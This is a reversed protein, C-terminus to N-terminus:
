ADIEPLENDDGKITNMEKGINYTDNMEALFRQVRTADVISLGKKDVDGRITIMGDKDKSADALVRQITTVDMIAIEGDGDADGNIYVILKSAADSRLTIQNNMGMFLSVFFVAVMVASLLSRFGRKKM